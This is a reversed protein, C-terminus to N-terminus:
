WAARIRVATSTIASFVVEDGAKIPLADILYRLEDVCGHIDGIVYSSM